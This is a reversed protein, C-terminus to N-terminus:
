YLHKKKNNNYFNYLIVHLYWFASYISYHYKRQKYQAMLLTMHFYTENRKMPVQIPELSGYNM